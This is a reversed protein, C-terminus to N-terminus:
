HQATNGNLNEKLEKLSARNRGTPDAVWAAFRNVAELAADAGHIISTFLKTNTDEQLIRDFTAGLEKWAQQMGRAQIKVADGVCKTSTAYQGQFDIRRAVEPGMVALAAQAGRVDPIFKHLEEANGHTVDRLAAFFGVIGEPGKMLDRVDLGAATFRATNQTIDALLSKFGTAAQEPSKFAISLTALTAATDKLTVGLESSFQTVTPFARAFDHLHGQGLVVTKFLIESVDAAQETPIRYAAMTKTLAVTASDLDSLGAKALRASVELFAVSQAPKIGASLVEYLGKALETTSGLLPPLKIIEERLQQQAAISRVNNTYANNLAAEFSGMAGVVDLVATRAISVASYIGLVGVSFKVLSSLSLQSSEGLSEVHTKGADLEKRFDALATTAQGKTTISLKAFALEGQNVAGELKKVNDGAVQSSAQFSAMASEVQKVAAANGQLSPPLADLRNKTQNISTAFSEMAAAAQGKTTIALKAFALEGSNIAAQLKNTDEEAVDTRALFSAMASEVQKVAAANGKLARDSTQQTVIAADWAKNFELTYQRTADVGTGLGTLATTAATTPAATAQMTTQLRDLEQSLTTHAAADAATRLTDLRKRGEELAVGLATVATAARGEAVQGFKDLLQGSSDTTLGFRALTTNGALITAALKSTNEGALDMRGTFQVLAGEARGVSLAIDNTTQTAQVQGQGLITLATAAGTTTAVTAQIAQLFQELVPTGMDNVILVIQVRSKEAM